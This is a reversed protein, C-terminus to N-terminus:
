PYATFDVNRIAVRQRFLHVRGGQQQLFDSRPTPPPQVLLPLSKYREWAQQELIGLELEVFAPVANSRFLYFGIEGPAVM